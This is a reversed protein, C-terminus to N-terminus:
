NSSFLQLVSSLIRNFTPQVTSTHANIIDGECLSEYKKEQYVLIHGSLEVVATVFDEVAKAGEVRERAWVVVRVHNTSAPEEASGGRVICINHAVNEQILWSTLKHVAAATSDIEGVDKLIFVFAPAPYIDAPLIYLGGSQKQLSSHQIPSTHGPFSLLHWHLHNVSAYACLSNYYLRTDSSTSLFIIELALQISYETVVQPLKHHVQPVLLTHNTAIPSVNIILLDKWNREKDKRKLQYLVEKDEDIKTFNFKNTDFEQRVSSM